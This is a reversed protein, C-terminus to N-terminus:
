YYYFPSFIISYSVELLREVEDESIRLIRPTYHYFQSRSLFNVMRAQTTEDAADFVGRVSQLLERISM